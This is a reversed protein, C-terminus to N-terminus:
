CCEATTNIVFRKQEKGLDIYDYALRQAFLNNRISDIKTKTAEIAYDSQDIGIWKRGLKQASKLTTGSGCFCDLM